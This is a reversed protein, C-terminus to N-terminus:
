MLGSEWYEVHRTEPQYSGVRSTKPLFLLRRKAFYREMQRWGYVIVDSCGIELKCMEKRITCRLLLNEAYKTNTPRIRVDTEEQSTYYSHTLYSRFFFQSLFPTM